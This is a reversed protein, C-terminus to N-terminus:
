ILYVAWQLLQWRKRSQLLRLNHLDHIAVAKHDRLLSNNLGNALLLLMLSAKVPTTRHGASRSMPIVRAVYAGVMPLM